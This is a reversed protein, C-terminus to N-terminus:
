LCDIRYFNHQSGDLGIIVKYNSSLLYFGNDYIEYSSLIEAFQNLDIKKSFEIELIPYSDCSACLFFEFHIDTLVINEKIAIAKEYMVEWPHTTNINGVYETIASIKEFFSFIEAKKSHTFKIAINENFEIL